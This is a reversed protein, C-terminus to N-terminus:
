SGAPRGFAIVTAQPPIQADFGGATATETWGTRCVCAPIAARFAKV